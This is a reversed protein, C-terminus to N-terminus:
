PSTWTVSPLLFYQLHIFSVWPFNVKIWTLALNSDDPTLKTTAGSRCILHPDDLGQSLRPGLRLFLFKEARRAEIQDLLLPPGHGTGQIQWQLQIINWSVLQIYGTACVSIGQQNFAPTRYLFTGGGGWSLWILIINFIQFMDVTPKVIHSDM